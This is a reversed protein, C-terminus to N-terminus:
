KRLSSTSRAVPWLSCERHAARAARRAEAALAAEEQDIEPSASALAKDPGKQGHAVCLVLAVLLAIVLGAWCRRRQLQAPAMVDLPTAAAAAPWWRAPSQPSPSALPLARLEGRAPACLEPLRSAVASLLRWAPARLLHALTRRATRKSRSPPRACLQVASHRV